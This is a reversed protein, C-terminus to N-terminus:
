VLGTCANNRWDEPCDRSVHVAMIKLSFSPGWPYFCSTSQDCSALGWRDTELIWARVVMSSPCPTQICLISPGSLSFTGEQGLGWCLEEPGFFGLFQEHCVSLSCSLWGSSCGRGRGPSKQWLWECELIVEYHEGVWWSRAPCRAQVRM